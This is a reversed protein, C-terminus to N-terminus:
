CDAKVVKSEPGCRRPNPGPKLTPFAYAHCHDRSRQRPVGDPHFNRSEKLGNDRPVRKGYAAHTPKWLVPWQKANTGLTNKEANM